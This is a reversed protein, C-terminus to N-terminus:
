FTTYLIHEDMKCARMSVRIPESLQVTLQGKQGEMAWCSGLRMDGSLAEEQKGVWTDAGIWRLMRIPFGNKEPYYTPSTFDRNM